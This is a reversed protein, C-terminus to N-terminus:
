THVVGLRPKRATYDHRPRCDAKQRDNDDRSDPIKLSEQAIVWGHERLFSRSWAKERTFGRLALRSPVYDVPFPKGFAGHLHELQGIFFRLPVVLIIQSGLM